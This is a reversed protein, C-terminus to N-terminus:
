RISTDALIHQCHNLFADTIPAWNGSGHARAGEACREYVSPTLLALMAHEFAQPTLGDAIIGTRGPIVQEILGGIPTVVVPIGNGYATTVSASQSAETYSAVLADAENFFSAIESNDVWRNVITVRPIRKLLSQYRSLDGAGVIHLEVDQRRAALLSFAQLLLDIGKYDVVRGFFLFRFPRGIPFQRSRGTQSEGGYIFSGLPIVMIREAPYRYGKVLQRKVHESLTVVGAAVSLERRLRWNLFPNWDGPHKYADHVISILKSGAEPIAPAVYWSWLHPMVSVVIQAKSRRVFEKFNSRIAPLRFCATLFSLKDDYSDIVQHLAPIAAIAERCESGAAISISLEINKRRALERALELTYLPGAGRRGWYWVLINM